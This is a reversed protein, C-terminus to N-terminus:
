VNHIRIFYITRNGCAQIAHLLEGCDSDPSDTLVIVTDYKRLNYLFSERTSDYASAFRRRTRLPYHDEAQPLLPSRTTSQSKVNKATKELERGLCLAPYMFEETGAVLVDKARIDDEKLLGAIKEAISLCEDNYKKISVGSRPDSLGYLEVREICGIRELCVFAANYGSFVNEDLGNFVLASVTIEGEWNISRLVNLITKGTTIEDEVFIIRDYRSLDSFEENLYLAQNKAHSHEEMFEAVLKGSPLNERTTHVYVANEISAAVMAGVATATEAFGIVLVREQGCTKAVKEGLLSFYELAQGPATPLHKALLPNIIVYPRAATKCDRLAIKLDPNM